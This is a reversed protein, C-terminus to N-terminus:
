LSILFGGTLFLLNDPPGAWNLHKAQNIFNFQISAVVQFSIKGLLSSFLLSDKEKELLLFFCTLM